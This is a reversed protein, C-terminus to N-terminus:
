TVFGEKHFLYLSFLQQPKSLITPLSPDSLQYNQWDTLRDILWCTLLDTLENTNKWVQLHGLSHLHHLSHPEVIITSPQSTQELGGISIDGMGEVRELKASLLGAMQSLHLAKKGKKVSPWIKTAHLMNEKHRHNTTFINNNENKWSRHVKM